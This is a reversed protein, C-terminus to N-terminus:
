VTITVTDPGFRYPAEFRVVYSFGPTVLVPNTWRGDAGTLSVGAPASLNGADYDSKLYVRVQADNIPNGGSDMYRLADPLGFNHDVSVTNTFIPPSPPTTVGGQSLILFSPDLLAVVAGTALTAKVSHIYTALPLTQTDLAKFHLRYRGNEADTVQLQKPDTSSKSIVTTGLGDKVISTITANTLDIPTGDDQVAVLDVDADVGQTLSITFSPM